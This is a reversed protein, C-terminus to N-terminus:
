VPILPHTMSKIAQDRRHVVPGAKCGCDTAIRKANHLANRINPFVPKFPSSRHDPNPDNTNPKHTIRV